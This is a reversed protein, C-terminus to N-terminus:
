TGSRVPSEGLELGFDEALQARLEPLAVVEDSGRRICEAVLPVFNQLYDHGLQDWNVKLIALSSLTSRNM